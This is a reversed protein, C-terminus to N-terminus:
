RFDARGESTCRRPRANVYTSAACLLTTEIFVVPGAARMLYIQTTTVILDTDALDDNVPLPTARQGPPSSPRAHRSTRLQEEGSKGNAAM